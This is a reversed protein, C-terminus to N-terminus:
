RTSHQMVRMGRMVKMYGAYNRLWVHSTSLPQEAHVRTIVRTIVRAHVRTIVRTIVRAHVRTIVRTIVRAHVRSIVTCSSSLIKDHICHVTQHLMDSISVLTSKNITPTIVSVQYEPFIGLDSNQSPM